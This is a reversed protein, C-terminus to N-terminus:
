TEGGLIKKKYARVHRGATEARVEFERGIVSMLYGQEWMRYMMKEDDESVRKRTKAMEM